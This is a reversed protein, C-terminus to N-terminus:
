LVADLTEPHDSLRAALGAFTFAAVNIFPCLSPEVFVNNALTATIGLTTLILANAFANREVRPNGALLYIGRFILVLIVLYAALGMLGLEVAMGVLHNHQNDQFTEPADSVSFHALGVGWLPAERFLRVSKAILQFRIDVEEMQAIGGAERSASFLREANAVVGLLCLAVLLPALKWKPTRTRCFFVVTALALLFVLYASRTSTFFVGFFFLPSLALILFRGLPGVLPLLFIGAVFCVTMALGNFAANLFPGRARDLHLPFAPDTIYSPYILADLHYRELIAVVCLYVGLAFLTAMLIRIGRVDGLFHRAYFYAAFPVFYGSFFVYWPKPAYPYKAAFGNLLMSVLCILLFIAMWLEIRRDGALRVRRAVVQYGASVALLVFLVREVSIDFLGPPKYAYFYTNWVVVSVIWLGFLLPFVSYHATAPRRVWSLRLLFLGSLGALALVAITLAAIM